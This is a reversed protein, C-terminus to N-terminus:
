RELAHAKLVRGAISCSQADFIHIDPARAPFRITDMRAYATDDAAKVRSTGLLAYVIMPVFAAYLGASVPLGAATAYAMAKPIVVAAATIGAIM